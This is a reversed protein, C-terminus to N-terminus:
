VMPSTNHNSDRVTVRLGCRVCRSGGVDDGMVAFGRDVLFSDCVWSGSTICAILYHLIVRFLTGGTFLLQGFCAASILVIVMTPIGYKDIMVGSIMPLVQIVYADFRSCRLKWRLPTTAVCYGVRVMNPFSYLSYLLGYNVNFDNAVAKEHPDTTNTTVIPVHFRRKLQTLHSFLFLPNPWNFL